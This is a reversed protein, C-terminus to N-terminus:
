MGSYVQFRSLPVVNMVIVNVMTLILAQSVANTMVRRRRQNFVIQEIPIAVRNGPRAPGPAAIDSSVIDFQTHRQAMAEVHVAAAIAFVSGVNCTRRDFYVVVGEPGRLSGDHNAAHRLFLAVHMVVPEQSM